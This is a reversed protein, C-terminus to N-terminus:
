LYLDNVDDECYDFLNMLVLTWSPRHQIHIDMYDSLYDM